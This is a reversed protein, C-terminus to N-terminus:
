VVSKRDRGQNQLFAEGADGGLVKIAEQTALKEAERDKKRSEFLVATDECLKKINALYAMEDKLEAEANAKASEKEGIEQNVANLIAQRDDREKVLSNLIETKENMLNTFMKLLKNEEDIATQKDEVFTDQLIKMQDVINLAEGTKAGYRDGGSQLFADTTQQIYVDTPQQLLSLLRPVPRSHKKLVNQIIHVEGQILSMFDPRKAEETTGDGYHQKLIDIAKGCAAISNDFDQQEAVFKAREENRKETAQNIATRVTDIEGNLKQIQSELEGKQAYLKALAATLDEILTQLMEIGDQTAQQQRGCWGSFEAFQKEDEAAEADMEAILNELLKIVRQIAEGPMADQENNATLSGGKADIRAGTSNQLLLMLVLAVKSVM